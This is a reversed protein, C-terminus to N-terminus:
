AKSPEYLEPLLWFLSLFTGSIELFYWTMVVHEYRRFLGPHVKMKELRAAPHCIIRPSMLKVFDWM